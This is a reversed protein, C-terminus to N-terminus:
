APKVARARTGHTREGVDEFGGAQRGDHERRHLLDGLADARRARQVALERETAREALGAVGLELGVDDAAPEGQEVRGLRHEFVWGVTM